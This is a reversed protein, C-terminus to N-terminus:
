IELLLTLIEFARFRLSLKQSDTTLEAEKEELMNCRFVKKVQPPLLLTDGGAMGMPEYLRLVVGNDVDMAPKCTEIFLRGDTLRFYSKAEKVPVASAKDETKVVTVPTNYEAGLRAVNSYQFPGKFPYLVYEFRHTGQDANMDPVAPSRLLTLSLRSDKASLGYKSDNILAIGNAADTMAAYRHHCTEYYDKEHQRSRHTPRRLYGFQIEEIVEKTYVSTPFDVKLLRHREHWDVETRFRIEACDASFIIQQKWTFNEERREVTAVAERGKEEFSFVPESRLPIPIQEYMSGIEWADYYINVDQYLRLENFPSEVYEYDSEHDKL